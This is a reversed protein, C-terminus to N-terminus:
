NKQRIILAEVQYIHKSSDQTWGNGNQFHM